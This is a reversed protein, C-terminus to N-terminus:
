LICNLALIIYVSVYSKKLYPLWSCIGHVKGYIRCTGPVRNSTQSVMRGHSIGDNPTKNITISFATKPSAGSDGM